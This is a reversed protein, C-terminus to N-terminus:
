NPPTRTKFIKFGTNNSSRSSSTYVEQNILKVQFSRREYYRAINLTEEGPDGLENIHVVRLKKKFPSVALTTEVPSDIVPPLSIAPELQIYKQDNFNASVTEEKKVINNASSKSSRTQIGQNITKKNEILSSSIDVVANEKSPLIEPVTAKKSQIQAPSNEVLSDQKKNATMLPVLIALLLCAAAAWYWAPGIHRPNQRLRSHLKEWAANKDTLTEGSLNSVDELKNKWHFDNLNENSMHPEM